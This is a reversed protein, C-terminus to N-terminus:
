LLHYGVEIGENETEAVICNASLVGNTTVHRSCGAELLRCLKAAKCSLSRHPKSRRGPSTSGFGRAAFGCFALM